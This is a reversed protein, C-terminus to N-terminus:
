ASSESPKTCPTLPPLLRFQLSNPSAIIGKNTLADDGNVEPVVLPVSDDMRWASSNDIVVCGNKAAIPAYEQSIPTDIAFLAIDIGRDFIQHTSTEVTVTKGNFDFTRGACAEIDFLFLESIPLKRERLVQLMTGGVMGCAGMIAVKKM